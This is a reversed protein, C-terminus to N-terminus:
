PSAEDPAAGVDPSFDECMAELIRKRPIVGRVTDDGDVVTIPGPHESAEEIVQALSAGLPVTCEGVAQEPGPSAMLTEARFVQTRDMDRVFARVYDDAPDLVIDEATGVQVLAGGRMIAIRDGVRFAEDLDHTVFVITRELREQLELLENQMQRRILPDLASFAEDMLLIDSRVALARALGVRQQMGGSLQAPYAEENGALGVLEIMERAREEREERSVGQIELGFAVNEMVTRSPLIAFQQFVMGGFHRRRFRILEKRSLDTVQVGDVEVRGRTPELLRNLLRLLTSKGSGSLGMIVFTEGAEVRFSVDRVGVVLGTEAQVEDKTRGDELLPFAREPASGFIKYLGDVAIKSVASRCGSRSSTGTRRSGHGLPRM